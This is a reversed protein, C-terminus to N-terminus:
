NCSEYCGEMVWYSLTYCILNWDLTHKVSNLLVTQTSNAGVLVKGTLSVISMVTAHNGKANANVGMM